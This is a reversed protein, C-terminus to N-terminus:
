AIALRKFSFSLMPALFFFFFHHRRLLLSSTFLLFLFPKGKFLKYQFSRPSRHPTFLPLPLGVLPHYIQFIVM